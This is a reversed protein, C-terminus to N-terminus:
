EGMPPMKPFRPLADDFRDWHQASDAFIDMQPSFMSPDDLTIVHLFVLDEGEIQGYIPTGCTPCFARMSRGGSDNTTTYRTLEGTVTFAAAPLGIGPLHTSGSTLQCDRCHCNVAFMPEADSEYRVAGCLCGGELKRTM